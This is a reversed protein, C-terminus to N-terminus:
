FEHFGPEVVHHRLFRSVATSSNGSLAFDYEDGGASPADLGTDMENDSYEEDSMRGKQYDAHLSM